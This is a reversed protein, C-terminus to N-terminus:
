CRWYYRGYNRSGWGEEDPFRMLVLKCSSPLELKSSLIRAVAENGLVLQDFPFLSTAVPPREAYEQTQMVPQQLRTACGSMLCGALAFVLPRLANMCTLECSQRFIVLVDVVVAHFTQLVAGEVFLSSAEPTNPLIDGGMLAAKSLVM